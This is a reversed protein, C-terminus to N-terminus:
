KRHAQHNGGDIAGGVYHIAIGGGPKTITFEATDNRGPEGNDTFRFTIGAGAVGNLTGTGQARISDFGAVPNGEKSPPAMTFCTLPTSYSTLVFKNGGFEVKLDPFRDSNCVSNRFEWQVKDFGQYNFQHGHGTMRGQKVTPQCKKGKKQKKCDAADASAPVFAASAALAAVLAFKKLM